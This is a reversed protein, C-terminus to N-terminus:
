DAHDGDTGEEDDKHRWGRVAQMPSQAAQMTIWSGILIIGM